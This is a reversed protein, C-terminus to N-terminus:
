LFFGFRTLKNEESMEGGHSEVAVEFLWNAIDDTM